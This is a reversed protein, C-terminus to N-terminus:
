AACNVVARQLINNVSQEDIDVFIASVMNKFKVSEESHRCLRCHFTSVIEAISLRESFGKDLAEKALLALKHQSEKYDVKGKETLMDFGEMAQQLVVGRLEVYQELTVGNITEM